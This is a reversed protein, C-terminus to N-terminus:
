RKGRLAVATLIRKLDSFHFVVCYDNGGTFFFSVFAVIMMLTITSLIIGLILHFQYSRVMDRTSLLYDRLSPKSATQRHTKPGSSSPTHPKAVRRAMTRLRNLACLYLFSMFLNCTSAFIQLKRALFLTYISGSLWFMAVKIAHPAAGAASM